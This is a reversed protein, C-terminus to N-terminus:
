EVCHNKGLGEQSRLNPFHADGITQQVQFVELALAAHSDGTM